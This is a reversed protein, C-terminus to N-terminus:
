PSTYAAQETLPDYSATWPAGDIRCIVVAPECTGTPWFTWLRPPHKELSGPLQLEPALKDGFEVRGGGQAEGRDEPALPRMFVGSEDWQLVYARRETIAHDSASRALADFQNFLKKARQDALVGSVSPVAILVIMVAIFVAICLELLTFARQQRCAIQERAPRM